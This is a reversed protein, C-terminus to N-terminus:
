TTLRVKWDYLIDSLTKEFSIKPNWGTDQHLKQYSGVVQRQESPRERNKEHRIEAEVGALILMNELVERISREVGSCINYVEGNKGERLLLGYAEVVDRVDTFDRTTDLNGVELVPKSRRLKMMVIQKAFDSVVFHGHQGPGIHNFPRAIVIEFNGTQSWQYVLAEAAAKSAAYPNRPRLTREETIPLQAQAVPGYVDASSVYVMRGRFGSSELASLLNFTGIVNVEFTERPNKIAEPVFSIAALHVLADPQVAAISTRLADENRIDIRLGRDGELPIISDYNQFHRGVFGDAGTLLIKM